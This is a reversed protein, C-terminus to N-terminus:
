SPFDSQRLGVLLGHMAGAKKPTRARPQKRHLVRQQRHDRMSARILKIQGNGNHNPTLDQRARGASLLKADAKAHTAQLTYRLAGDIAGM